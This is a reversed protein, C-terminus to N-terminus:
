LTDHLRWRFCGKQYRFKYILFYFLIFYFIIYRLYVYLCISIPYLLCVFFQPLITVSQAFFTLQIGFYLLKFNIILFTELIIPFFFPSPPSLFIETSLFLFNRSFVIISYFPIINLLCLSCFPLM